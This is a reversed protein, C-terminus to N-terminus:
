GDALRGTQVEGPCKVKITCSIPVEAEGLGLIGKQKRLTKIGFGWHLHPKEPGKAPPIVLTPM